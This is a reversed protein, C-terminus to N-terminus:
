VMGETQLVVELHEIHELNTQFEHCEIVLRRDAKLMTFLTVNLDASAEDGATM